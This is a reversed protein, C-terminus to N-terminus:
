SGFVVSLALVSFSEENWQNLGLLVGIVPMLVVAIMSIRNTLMLSQLELPDTVKATGLLSIQNWVKKM